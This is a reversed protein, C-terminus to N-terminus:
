LLMGSLTSISVFLVPFRSIPFFYSLCDLASFYCASMRSIFFDSLCGLFRISDSLGGLFRSLYGLFWFLILYNQFLLRLVLNDWRRIAFANLGAWHSVLGWRQITFTNQV